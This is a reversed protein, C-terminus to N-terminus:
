EATAEAMAGIDLSLERVAAAVKEATHVVVDQVSRLRITIESGRAPRYAGQGDLVPECNGGNLDPNTAIIADNSAADKMNYVRTSLYGRAQILKGASLQAVAAVDEETAIPFTVNIPMKMIQGTSSAEKTMLTFRGQRLQRGGDGLPVNVVRASGHIQGIVDCNVRAFNKLADM